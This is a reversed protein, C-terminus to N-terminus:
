TRLKETDLEDEFLPLFQSASNSIMVNHNVDVSYDRERDIEKDDIKSNYPKFCKKEDLVDEAAEQAASVKLNSEDTRHKNFTHKILGSLNVFKRGCGKRLCERIHPIEAHASLDEQQGFVDECLGCPMPTAPIAPNDVYTPFTSTTKHLTKIAKSTILVDNKEGGKIKNHKIDDAQNGPDKDPVKKRDREDCRKCKVKNHKEKDKCGGCLLTHITKRFLERESHSTSVRVKEELLFILVQALKDSGYGDPLSLGERIVKEIM